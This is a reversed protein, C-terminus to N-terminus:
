RTRGGGGRLIKDRIEEPARDGATDDAATDAPKGGLLDLVRAGIGKKEGGSAPAPPAAGTPSPAGAPAPPLTTARAADPWLTAVDQVLADASVGAEEAIEGWPAGTRRAAFVKEVPHGGRLAIRHSLFVDGWGLRSSAREARLTDPAVGLFAAMRGVAATEARPQSTTRDVAAAVADLRDQASAAVATVALVLAALAVKSTM